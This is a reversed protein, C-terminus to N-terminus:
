VKWPRNAARKARAGYLGKPAPKDSSVKTANLSSVSFASQAWPRNAVLRLDAGYLSLRGDNELARKILVEDIKDM